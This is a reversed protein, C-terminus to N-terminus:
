VYRYDGKVYQPNIPMDIDKEKQGKTGKIFGKMLTHAYSPRWPSKYKVLSPILQWSVRNRDEIVQLKPTSSISHMM